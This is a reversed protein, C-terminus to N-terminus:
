GVAAAVAAAYPLAVPCGWGSAAAGAELRGELTCVTENPAAEFTGEAAVEIGGVAPGEARGTGV